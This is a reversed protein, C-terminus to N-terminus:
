PRSQTQSLPFGRPPSSRQHAQTPSLAKYVGVWTIEAKYMGAGTIAAKHM